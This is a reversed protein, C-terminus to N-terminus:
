DKHTKVLGKAGYVEEYINRYHENITTNGFRTCSLQDFIIGKDLLIGAITVENPGIVAVTTLHDILDGPYFDVVLKDDKKNNCKFRVTNNSISEVELVSDFDDLKALINGLLMTGKKKAKDDVIVSGLIYGFGPVDEDKIRRGTFYSYWHGLEYTYKETLGVITIDSIVSKVKEKGM